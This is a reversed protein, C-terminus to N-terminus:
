SRNRQQKDEEAISSNEAWSGSIELPPNLSKCDFFLGKLSTRTLHSRLDRIHSIKTSQTATINKRGELITLPKNKINMWAEEWCEKKPIVPM